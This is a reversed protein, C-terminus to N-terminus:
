PVNPGSNKLLGANITIIIVLIENHDTLYYNLEVLNDFRAIATGIM